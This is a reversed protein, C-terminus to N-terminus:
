LAIVTCTMKRELGLESPCMHVNRNLSYRKQKMNPLDQMRIRGQPDRTQGLYKTAQRIGVLCISASWLVELYLLFEGEM